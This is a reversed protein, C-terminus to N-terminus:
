QQPSPTTSPTGKSIPTSKPQSAKSDKTSTKSPKQETKISFGRSIEQSPCCDPDGPAYRDMKVDIKGANASLTKVKVREGLFEASVNKPNGRENVVGVLYTFTRGNIGVDISGVADKIGDKNLDGYAVVDGLTFTRKQKDQFKGNKLTIPGESLIYYETNKLKQVTLPPKSNKPKASTPKPSPTKLTPSATSSPKTTPTTSQLTNASAAPSAPAAAPKAPAASNTPSPEQSLLQTPTSCSNLGLALGVGAGLTLLSTIPNSTM